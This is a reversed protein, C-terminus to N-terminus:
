RRKMQEELIKAHLKAQQAVLDAELRSIQAQRDETDRDTKAEKLWQRAEIIACDIEAINQKIIDM